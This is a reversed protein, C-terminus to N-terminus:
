RLVVDVDHAEVLSPVEWKESMRRIVAEPVRGPRARNQALLDDRKAELYVIRLRAGYDAALAELPLRKQRSINTANYVFRDGRRLHERIREKGAQAVAGQNAEPDVDMAARLDDLSVVPLDGLRARVHSDKGAGPLGCMMIM